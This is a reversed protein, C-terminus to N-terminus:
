AGGVSVRGVLLAPRVPHHSGHVGGDDGPQQWVRRPQQVVGAVTQAVSAVVVVTTIVSVGGRDAEERGDVVQSSNLCVHM